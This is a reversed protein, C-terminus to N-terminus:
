HRQLLQQQQTMAAARGAATSSYGHLCQPAAALISFANNPQRVTVPRECLGVCIVCKLTDELLDTKGCKSSSKTQKGTEEAFL